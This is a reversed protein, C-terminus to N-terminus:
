TRLCRTRFPSPSVYGNEQSRDATNNPQCELLSELLPINGNHVLTLNHEASHSNFCQQMKNELLLRQQCDLPKGNMTLALEGDSRTTVDMGLQEAAEKYAQNMHSVIKTVLEAEVKPTLRPGQYQLVLTLDPVLGPTVLLKKQHEYSLDKNQSLALTFPCEGIQMQLEPRLQLFQTAIEEDLLPNDIHAVPRLEPVPTDLIDEILDERINLPRHYQNAM